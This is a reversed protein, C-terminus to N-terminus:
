VLVPYRIKKFVVNKQVMRYIFNSPLLFSFHAIKISDLSLRRCWKYRKQGDCWDYLDMHFLSYTHM